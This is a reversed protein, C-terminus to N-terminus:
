GAEDGLQHRMLRLQALFGTMSLVYGHVIDSWEFLGTEEGTLTFTTRLFLGSQNLANVQKRM